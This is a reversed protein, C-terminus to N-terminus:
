LLDQSKTDYTKWSQEEGEINKKAIRPRKCRWIFKRILKDIDELYSVPIKIPIAKFRFTVNLFVLMKVIDLRGVLFMLNTRKSKGRSNSNTCPTLCPDLKEEKGRVNIDLSRTCKHFISEKEWQEAADGKDYILHEFISPDVEPSETQKWWVTATQRNSCFALNSHAKYFNKVGPLVLRGVKNKKKLLKKDVKAKVTSFSDKLSCLFM